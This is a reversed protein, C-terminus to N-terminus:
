DLYEEPKTESVFMWILATAAGAVGAIALFSAPAFVASRARLCPIESAVSYLQFALYTNVGERGRRGDFFAARLRM